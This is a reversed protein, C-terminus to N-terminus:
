EQPRFTPDLAARLDPISRGTARSVGEWSMRTARLREALSREDASLSGKRQRRLVKCASRHKGGSM